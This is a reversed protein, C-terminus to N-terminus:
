SEILISGIRGKGAAGVASLYRSPRKVLSEVRVAQDVFISM